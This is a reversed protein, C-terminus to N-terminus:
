ARRPPDTRVRDFWAGLVRATTPARDELISFHDALVPEAADAAKWTPDVPAGHSAEPAVARVALTPVEVEVPQWEAYLRVYAGMAMLNEDNVVVGTPDRDLIESMAWVFLAEREGADDIDYTDIMAVGQARTGSRLLREAVARAMLGGVSHGVLFFPAGAAAEATAEAMADVAASWSKPLPASRGFGPLVLASTRLRPRLEAALRAFQHPGSGALFSPVCIVVPDPAGDAVLVSRATGTLEATSAFSPQFRSAAALLPVAEAIAHEVHARRLLQTYTGGRRSEGEAPVAPVAPRDPTREPARETLWYRQRQFPYTPLPVARAGRGDFLPTWDVRVGGVHAQALSRLFATHGPAADGGTPRTILFDDPDGGAASVAATLADTLTPRLGVDLFAQFGEALRARVSEALPEVPAPAGTAARAAEPLTRRGAIVEAAAEGGPAALVADPEVGYARWLAALSVTVAFSVARELAPAGPAGEVAAALPNGDTYPALAEACEEMRRAFAPEAALLERIGDPRQGDPGPVVFAVSGPRARTPLLVDPAAQGAAVRDLGALLDDRTRGVVAARHSLTARTTALSFAVDLPDADPHERAWEALRRAQAALGSPMRGSVTWVLPADDPRDSAPEESVAPPEEVIVHANTGSAGFSSVGARRPREPSRPWPREETLLRVRGRSWDVKGTPRDVHLTAPLREARLAGIMKIIGGVGAAAQTHGINSKLSGLWLPRQGPDGYAAQLAQVEIPDGLTTATGHGEVADVDAATLGADTLAARIVREQAPGNPATMGNSAGDQNVASGRLVAHVRHGNRRADSLRELVLVGMGEAWGTGDAADAFARCRGDPSLARQRSFEVFVSPTALVTVGGVVALSSEGRRLSQMALHTAVLSSSCATDVTLAPGEFGFTYAVRGSVFSGLTGIGWRGAVQDARSRAVWAYDQFMAGAFVGTASGRLSEPDIGAEELAEWTGELLLRQQPDMALADRRGVNFFRPDFETATSLFGGTRVYSTGPHAPDPHYVTDMDWGRDEPFGAIADRGEAVLRWLAEPSDADGPYRCAMGVVAVPEAATANRRKLRANEKMAARLAAVLDHNDVTM